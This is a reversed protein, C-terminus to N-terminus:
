LFSYILINYLSELLCTSVYGISRIEDVNPPARPNNRTM